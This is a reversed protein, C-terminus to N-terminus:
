ILGEASGGVLCAGYIDVLATISSNMSATKDEEVKLRREELELKKMELEQKRMIEDHPM